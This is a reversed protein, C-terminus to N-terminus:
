LSCLKYRVIFRSYLCGNGAAKWCIMAVAAKLRNETIFEYILKITVDANMGVAASNLVAILLAALMWMAFIEVKLL